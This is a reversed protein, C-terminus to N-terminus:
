SMQTARYTATLTFPVGQDVVRPPSTFREVARIKDDADVIAYGYANASGADTKTWSTPAAVMYAIGSADLAPVSWASIVAAAYGDWTPQTLDAYVTDSDPTLNNSFLVVRSDSLGGSRLDELDALRGEKPVLFAM